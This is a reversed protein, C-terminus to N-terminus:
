LLQQRTSLRGNAYRCAEAMRPNQRIGTPEGAAEMNFSTCARGLHPDRRHHLRWPPYSDFDLRVRAGMNGRDIDLTFLPNPVTENSVEHLTNLIERSETM